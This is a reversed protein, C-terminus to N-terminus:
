RDPTRFQYDAASSAERLLVQDSEIAFTCRGEPVELLDILDPDLYLQQCVECLSAPLGFFLREEGEPLKFTADFRSSVLSRSCVPCDNGLRAM